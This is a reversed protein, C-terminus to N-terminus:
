IARFDNVNTFTPGTIVQSSVAEFFRHSDNEELMASPDVCAKAARLLLDPGFAAGAVEAAGDVGDTDCAFAYIGPTGELEVALSLAFEANPGGKGNGKQSVTFEGGSLLVVPPDDQGMSAKLQRARNAHFVAQERAEGELADGRFEVTLGQSRALEAAAELSKGPTAILRNKTRKLHPHRPTPLSTPSSLHADVSAPATIGYKKLIESAVSHSSQGAVTPGSAILEPYDGPVDSIILGLMKAPWAATALQGGKVLSLHKRVANIESIPAGAALLASSVGQKEDLSIDGAPQVLLSSGGGSVLALVFTNEDCKELISIIRKSAEYGNRDPLPHSAEVIEIGSCPRAYGYRTIVLGECPRWAMEVIEAMRASAKGAGVVVVKGAPKPPLAAPICNYPDAATVAREFLSTLLNTGCIDRSGVLTVEPELTNM